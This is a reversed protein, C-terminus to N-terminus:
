KSSAASGPTEEPKGETSNSWVIQDGAPSRMQRDQWLKVFDISCGESAFQSLDFSKGLHICGSPCPEVCLGCFMCRNYDIEYRTLQATKGKGISEICICDVPCAAACLDCAICKEIEYVHIGRYGDPVVPKEDPYQLTVPKKFLYRGTIGMGVFTTKIAQWITALYDAVPTPKSSVAM